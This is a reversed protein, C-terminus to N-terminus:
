RGAKKKAQYRASNARACARCIRGRRNPSRLVNEPSYEHGNKCHTNMASRQRRGNESRTLLRLHAPNVCPPNFCLHDVTMGEPIPGHAKEYAIRHARRSGLTGYGDRDIAGTWVICDTDM